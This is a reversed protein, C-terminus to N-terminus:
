FFSLCFIRYRVSVVIVLIGGVVVGDELEGFVFYDGLCICVDINGVFLLFLKISVIKILLVFCWIM